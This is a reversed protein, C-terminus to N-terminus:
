GEELSLSFSLLLPVLQSVPALPPPDLHSRVVRPSQSSNFSQNWFSGTGPDSTSPYLSTGPGQAAKQSGQAKRKKNRQLIFFAIIAPAAIQPFCCLAVAGISSLTDSVSSSSSDEESPNGDGTLVMVKYIEYVEKEDGDEETSKVIDVHLLIGKGKKVSSELINGFVAQNDPDSGLTLFTIGLAPYSEFDVLTDAMIIRENVDYALYDDKEGDSDTDVYNANLDDWTPTIATVNGIILFSSAILVLFVLFVSFAKFM